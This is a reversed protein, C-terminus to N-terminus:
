LRLRANVGHGSLLRKVDFVAPRSRGALDAEVDHHWAFLTVLYHASKQVWVAEQSGSLARRDARLYHDRKAALSPSRPTTKQM